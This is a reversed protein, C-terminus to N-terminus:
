LAQTLGGLRGWRLPRGGVVGRGAEGPGRRWGRDPEPAAGGEAASPEGRTRGPDAVAPEMPTPAARRRVRRVLLAVAGIFGILATGFKLIITLEPLWQWIAEASTEIMSWM